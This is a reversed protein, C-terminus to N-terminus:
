SQKRAADAFRRAADAPSMNDNGWFQGVIDFFALRTEEQVAMNHAWSPVLVNKNAAQSFDQASQKAYADYRGMPVDTRAPINGKYLNFAEQGDQSMLLTVFDRQAALAAPDTLKFMTLTDAAFSFDGSQTPAPWCLYDTGQAKGAQVFEAKAWDGMIQLVARGNIVDATALNWERGAPDPTVYPKFRRLIELARIMTPGTLASQDLKSFASRYFDAGMGVTIAEFTTAVQWSQESHAVLPIGGQKFKDAMAFFEDWSAPARNFGFRKALSANVWLMNTRAVGLPVAVYKGDAQIMQDFVAPLISSWRQERALDTLDACVGQKAWNQIKVGGIAAATPPNGAQVRNKLSAMPDGSGAGADMWHHGQDNLRKKLEFVAKAESSSLWWHLVEIDALKYKGVIELLREAQGDLHDLTQTSQRLASDTAQTMTSVQEASQAMTTTAASQEMTADAIQRVIGVVHDMRGGIELMHSRAEEAREVSQKVRETTHSMNEVAAQTEKGVSEIRKAIDITAQGTREALKRVEDAVVAFGRGQEGARAAEIAANLALLNTQGAIDKIVGVISGIEESRQSLGDMTIALAHMSESVYGVEESVRGVAEASEGSLHQADAVAGDVDRANDAIHSISVTIEEVTAASSAAYDSQTRTDKSMQATVRTMEHLNLALGEMERQVERFASQQAGIFANFANAMEGIEDDGGSPVRLSLDGGGSALRRLTEHMQGVPKLALNITVVMVAIIAALCVLGILLGYSGADNPNFVIYGLTIGFGIVTSACAAGLIRTRISAM